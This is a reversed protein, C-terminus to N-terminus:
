LPGGLGLRFQPLLKGLAGGRPSLVIGTRPHVVRIGAVRAPEAAHEWRQALDALFGSGPQSSEDLPEDGRDGYWGIASASVLVPRRRTPSVGGRAHFAKAM